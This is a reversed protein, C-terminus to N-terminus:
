FVYLDIACDVVCRFEHVFWYVDLLVCYAVLQIRVCLLFVPLFMSLMYGVCVCVGVVVWYCALVCM